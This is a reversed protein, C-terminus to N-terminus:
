TRDVARTFAIRRQPIDVASICVRVPDGLGFRRGAKQGTLTMTDENHEYWDDGLDSIHLLGEVFPERIQAFLGFHTVTTITADFEEGVRDKVSLARYLDLAEYEAEMSRRELKSSSVAADDLQEELGRGPRQKGIIRKLMRHVVLDPYRRIPSTFHLYGDVGLGFHGVDDVSYEARTLTRLAMYHLAPGATTREAATLFASLDRPSIGQKGQPLTLGHVAGARSLLAVKEPDPPPHVRWISPFDAEKFARGVAMNAALMLEEILKHSAKRGRARVDFTGDDGFLVEAEPLDLDLAGRERRRGNLAQAVESLRALDAKHAWAPGAQADDGDLASQAQDYTLRARSRIVADVFRCPGLNGDRRVEIIAVMAQRDVQPRLSCLGNSLKEPLMPVCLGPLYVSTGRGIAARDLATGERVYDAVDAIGVYLRWGGGAAGESAVADDFDKADAGDITVFPIHRMDDRDPRSVLADGDVEDPLADAQAQADAPFQREIGREALIREVEAAPDAPAGLVRLLVATPASQSPAGAAPPVLRAEVVTGEALDGVGAGELPIIGPLGEAGSDLYPIEGLWVISGIANTPPERRAGGNRGGASPGKRRRTAM